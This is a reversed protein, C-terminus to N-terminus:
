EGLAPANTSRGRTTGGFGYRQYLMNGGTSLLTGIAKNKGERYAIEGRARLDGAGVRHGWAERAANSRIALADVESLAATDAFVNVPTSDPDSIDVGSGAFAARQSGILRRTDIRHRQEVTRGRALADDAMMDQHTANANYIDRTGKGAGYQAGATIGGGVVSLAIAATAGM